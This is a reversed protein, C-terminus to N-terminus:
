SIVNKRVPLRLHKTPSNVIILLDSAINDEKLLLVKSVFGFYYIFM